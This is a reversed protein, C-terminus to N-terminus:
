EKGRVQRLLGLLFFKPARAQFGEQVQQSLCHPCKPEKKHASHHERDIGTKRRGYHQTVHRRSVQPCPRVHFIDFGCVGPSFHVLMEDPCKQRLSGPLPQQLYSLRSPLIPSHRRHHPFGECESMIKMNVAPLAQFGKGKQYLVVGTGM